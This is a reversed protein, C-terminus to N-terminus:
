LFTLQKELKCTSKRSKFYSTVNFHVHAYIICFDYLM